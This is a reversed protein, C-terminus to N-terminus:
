CACRKRVRPASCDERTEKEDRQESDHLSPSPRIPEPVPPELDSISQSASPEGVPAPGDNLGARLPPLEYAPGVEPLDSQQLVSKLKDESTDDPPPKEAEMLDSEPEGYKAYYAAPISFNEKNNLLTCCVIIVILGLVYIYKM